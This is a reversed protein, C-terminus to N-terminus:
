KMKLKMEKAGHFIFYPQSIKIKGLCLNKGTQKKQTQCRPTSSSVMLRSLSLLFFSLFFDGAVRKKKTKGSPTIYKDTM